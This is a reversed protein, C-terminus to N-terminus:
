DEKGNKNEKHKLFKIKFPQINVEGVEQISFDLPSNIPYEIVELLPVDDKTPIINFKSMYDNFKNKIEECLDDIQKERIKIQVDFANKLELYKENLEYYKEKYFDEEKIEM